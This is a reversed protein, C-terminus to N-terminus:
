MGARLAVGILIFCADFGLFVFLYTLSPIIGKVFLYIIVPILLVGSIIVLTGPSLLLIFGIVFLLGGVIFAINRYLVANGVNDTHNFHTQSFFYLGVMLVIIGVLLLIAGLPGNISHEFPDPESTETSREMEDVIEGSMVRFVLPKEKNNRGLM